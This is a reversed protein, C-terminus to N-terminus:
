KAINTPAKAFCVLLPSGLSAISGKFRKTPHLSNLEDVCIHKLVCREPLQNRGFREARALKARLGIELLTGRATTSGFRMLSALSGDLFSCRTRLHLAASVAAASHARSAM